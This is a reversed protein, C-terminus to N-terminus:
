LTFRCVALIMVSPSRTSSIKRISPVTSSLGRLWIWSSLSRSSTSRMQGYRDWRFCVRCRWGAGGNKGCGHGFWIAEGIAHCFQAQARAAFGVFPDRAAPDTDIALHDGFEAGLDQGRLAYADLALGRGFLALADGDEDVLRDAVDAALGLV